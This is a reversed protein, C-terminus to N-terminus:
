DAEDVENYTLREAESWVAIRDVAICYGDPTIGAGLATVSAAITRCISAIDRSVRLWGGGDSLASVRYVDTRPAGAEAAALVENHSIHIARDFGGSTSKVEVRVTTGDMEVLEFDWPSIANAESAWTFSRIRGTALEHQLRINVLVEGDRGNSEASTRAKALAEASMRRLSPRATLKRIADTSGQAAEELAADLEIDILERIPHDAPSTGSVVALTEASLLAMSRGTLLGLLDSLVQADANEAQSVLVMAISAPVPQFRSEEFAFVALDGAALGHYRTPDEAPDPVFEGNLRWNKQRGGAAIVKRTKHDPMRRLGPGYIQLKVPFQHPQGAAVTRAYPFIMEVFVDANLNISKQNGAQQRHFQHEFFTLDSRTLKKVAFHM